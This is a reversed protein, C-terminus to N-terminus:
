KRILTIITTTVSRTVIQEMFGKLATAFNVNSEAGAMLASASVPSTTSTEEPAIGTGIVTTVLNVLLVNKWVSNFIYSKNYLRFDHM